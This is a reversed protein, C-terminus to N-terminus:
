SHTTFGQTINLKTKGHLNKRPTQLGLACPSYKTSQHKKLGDEDLLWALTRAREKLEVEAQCVLLWKEAPDNPWQWSRPSSGGVTWSIHITCISLASSYRDRHHRLLKGQHSQLLLWWLWMHWCLLLVSLPKGGGLSNIRRPLTTFLSSISITTNESIWASWFTPKWPIVQNCRRPTVQSLSSKAKDRCDLNRHTCETNSQHSWYLM